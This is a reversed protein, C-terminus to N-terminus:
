AKISRAKTTHNPEIVGKLADPLPENNRDLERFLGSISNSNYGQQVFEGLDAEKLAICAEETTADGIRKAWIENKTYVTRGDIKMNKIGADVMNDCVQEEIATIKANVRDLASALAAKAKGLRAFRKILSINLQKNEEEPM